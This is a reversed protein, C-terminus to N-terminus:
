RSSAARFDVSEVNAPTKFSFTTDPISANLQINRLVYVTTDENASVYTVKQAMWTKMDVWVRASTIGLATDKPLVDLVHVKQGDLRQEGVYTVHDDDPFQLLFNDPRLPMTAPDFDNLIVQQTAPSYSWVTRGDTVVTQVDTQVRFKNPRSMYFHGSMTQESGALKWIFTQDFEAQFSNVRDYARRVRRLVDKGDPASHVASISLAVALATLLFRKMYRGKM